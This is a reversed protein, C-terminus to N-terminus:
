NIYNKLLETTTNKVTIINEETDNVLHISYEGYFNKNM